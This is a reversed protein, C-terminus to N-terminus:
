SQEAVGIRNTVNGVIDGESYVVGKLRVTRSGSGTMRQIADAGDHTILPLVEGGCAILTDDKPWSAGDYRGQESAPLVCVLTAIAEDEGYGESDTFFEEADEDDRAIVFWDEYHDDTECWYLKLKKNFDEVGNWFIPIDGRRGDADDCALKVTYATTSATAPLERSRKESYHVHSGRVGQEPLAAYTSFDQQIDTKTVNFYTGGTLAERELEVLANMYIIVPGFNDSSDAIEDLRVRCTTLAEKADNAAIAIQFTGEDLNDQNTFKFCGIFIRTIPATQTTM